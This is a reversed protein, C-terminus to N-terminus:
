IITRRSRLAHAIATVSTINPVTACRAVAAQTPSQLPSLATEMLSSTVPTFM